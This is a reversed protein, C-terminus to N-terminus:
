RQSSRASGASLRLIHESAAGIAGERKALRRLIHEAELGRGTKQLCVALVYSADDGSPRALLALQLVPVAEAYKGQTVLHRALAMNVRYVPGDDDDAARNRAMLYAAFVLCLVFTAAVAWRVRIRGMPPPQPISISRPIRM